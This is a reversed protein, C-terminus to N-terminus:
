HAVASSEEARCQQQALELARQAARRADELSGNEIAVRAAVLHAEVLAEDERILGEVAESVDGSFREATLRAMAIRAQADKPDIELAEQFLKVADTYQHTAMFLRGWRLRPLLARPDAAVAQRFLENAAQVDGLAWNSEARVLPDQTSRLLGQYCSRAETARGQWAAADCRALAQPRRDDYDISQARATTALGALLLAACLLRASNRM